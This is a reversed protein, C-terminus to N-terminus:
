DNLKRGCYPCFKIGELTKNHHDDHDLLILDVENGNKVLGDSIYFEADMDFAVENLEAM